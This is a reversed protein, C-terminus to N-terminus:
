HLPGRYKGRRIEADATAAQELALDETITIVCNLKPGYKRLRDLYMRTLASSTIKKARLLPALDSVSWFALDEIQQWSRGSSRRLLPKFRAARDPSKRGPLGPHFSFAPETDLPVPLQRLAEYGKLSQNLGPLMMQIQEESFDLKLLKLATAVQEPTVGSEADRVATQQAKGARAAALIGAIQLLIRRQM